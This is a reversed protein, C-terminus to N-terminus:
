WAFIRSSRFSRSVWCSRDAERASPDRATEKTRARSPRNSPLGWTVLGWPSAENKVGTNLVVDAQRALRSAPRGTVAILRAGIRKLVPLLHVIEETEGSHSLAIVVDGAAVKGLDGHAAEAPHLWLSPIGLSSLTASMKQGIIGPKGMGTVVVRGPCLELIKVAEEFRKDLRPILRSIAEQEIKLVMRARNLVSRKM